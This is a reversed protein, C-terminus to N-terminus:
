KLFFDEYEDKTLRQALLRSLLDFVEELEEQSLRPIITKLVQDDSFKQLYVMITAEDTARDLGFGVLGDYDEVFTHDHQSM